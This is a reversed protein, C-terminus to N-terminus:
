AYVVVVLLAAPRWGFLWLLGSGDINIEIKAVYKNWQIYKLLKWQRILMGDWVLSYILRLEV